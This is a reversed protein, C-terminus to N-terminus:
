NSIKGAKEVGGFILYRYWSRIGFLYGFIRRKEQGGKREWLSNRNKKSIKRRRMQESSEKRDIELVDPKIDRKIERCKLYIKKWLNLNSV